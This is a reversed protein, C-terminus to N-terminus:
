CSAAAVAGQRARFSFCPSTLRQTARLAAARKRVQDKVKINIQEGGGVKEEKPKTEGAQESMAPASRPAWLVSPSRLRTAAHLSDALPAIGGSGGGGGHM